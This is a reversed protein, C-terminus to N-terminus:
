VVLTGRPEVAEKWLGCQWLSEDGRKNIIQPSSHITKKQKPNYKYKKIIYPSVFIPIM